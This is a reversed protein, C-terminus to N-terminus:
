YVELVAGRFGIALFTPACNWWLIIAVVVDLDDWLLLMGLIFRRLIIVVASVNHADINNVSRRISICRCVATASGVVVVVVVAVVVVVVVIVFGSSISSSSCCSGVHERSGDVVVSQEVAVSAAVVVVVDVVVTLLLGCSRVWCTTASVSSFKSVRVVDDDDDDDDVGDVQSMM